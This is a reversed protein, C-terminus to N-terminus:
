SPQQGIPMPLSLTDVQVLTEVRRVLREYRSIVGISGIDFNPFLFEIWFLSWFLLCTLRLHLASEALETIPTTIRTPSEVSYHHLLKLMAACSASIELLYEQAARVRARKVQHYHAASLSKRLFVDEGGAILNRFAELDVKVFKVEAQDSYGYRRIVFYLFCLLAALGLSLSVILM